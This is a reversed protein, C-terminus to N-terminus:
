IKEIREGEGKRKEETSSMRSVMEKTLTLVATLAFMKRKRQRRCSWSMLTFSKRRGRLEGIYASSAGNQDAYHL